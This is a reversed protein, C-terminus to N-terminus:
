FFCGLPIETTQQGFEVLRLHRAKENLEVLRTRGFTRSITFPPEGVKQFCMAALFFVFISAVVQRGGGLAGGVGLLVVGLVGLLWFCFVLCLVL